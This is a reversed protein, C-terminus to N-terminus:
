CTREDSYPQAEFTVIEIGSMCGYVVCKSDLCQNLLKKKQLRIFHFFYPFQIFNTFNLVCMCM